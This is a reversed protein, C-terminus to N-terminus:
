ITHKAGYLWFDTGLVDFDNHNKENENVIKLSTDGRKTTLVLSKCFYFFFSGM